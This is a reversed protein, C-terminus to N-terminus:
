VPRRATEGVPISMGWMVVRQSANHELRLKLTVKETQGKKTWMKFVDNGLKQKQQKTQKPKPKASM